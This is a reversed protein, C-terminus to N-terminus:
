SAQEASAASAEQPAGDADPNITAQAELEARQAALRTLAEAFRDDVIAKRKDFAAVASLYDESPRAIDYPTIGYNVSDKDLIAEFLEIWTTYFQSGMAGSPTPLTWDFSQVATILLRMDADTLLVYSLDFRADEPDIADRFKKRLAIVGLIDAGKMVAQLAMEYSAWASIFTGSTLDPVRDLIRNTVTDKAINHRGNFKAGPTKLLFYKSM